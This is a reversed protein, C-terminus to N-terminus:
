TNPIEKTNTWIVGDLDEHDIDIGSDIIAVITTKGKKGKIIEKYARDVAMGPITDKELDLHGWNEKESKTLEAVKLPSTDINEVPTSIIAAPAGCSIITSAIIIYAISLKQNIKMM